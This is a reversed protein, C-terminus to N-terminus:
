TAIYGMMEFKIQRPPSQNREEGREVQLAGERDQDNRFLEIEVLIELVRPSFFM